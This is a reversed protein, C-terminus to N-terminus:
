AVQGSTSSNRQDNPYTVARKRAYDIWQRQTTPPLDAFPVYRRGTDRYATDRNANRYRWLVNDRELDDLRALADEWQDQPTM